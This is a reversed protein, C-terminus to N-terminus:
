ALHMQLGYHYITVDLRQGGLNERKQPNGVKEKREDDGGKGSKKVTVIWGDM